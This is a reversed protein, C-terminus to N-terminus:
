VEESFPDYSNNENFSTNEEINQIETTSKNQKDLGIITDVICEVEKVKQGDQKNWFRIEIRGQIYVLSGKHLYNQIYEATKNWAICTIFDTKKNGNSDKFLRDCAVDFSMVSRGSNTSQIEPEKTLRGLIILNNM